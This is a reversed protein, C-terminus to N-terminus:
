TDIYSTILKRIQDKIDKPQGEDTRAVLTLGPLDILYLHPINLYMVKIYIPKNSINKTNQTYTNTTMDIHNAISRIDEKSYVQYPLDIRVDNVFVCTQTSDTIPCLEIHIPTRTTIQTGTPLIPIGIIGNLVSTKGASQTGVVVLRPVHIINQYNHLITTLQAGVAISNSAGSKSSIFDSVTQFVSNM